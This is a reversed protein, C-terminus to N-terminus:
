LSLTIPIVRHLLRVFRLTSIKRGAIIRPLFPAPRAMMMQIAPVALLIGILPSAGPLLGVLAIILMIIGFSRTGLHDIIWNLTVHDKPADRLLGELIVSTPVRMEMDVSAHGAEDAASRM